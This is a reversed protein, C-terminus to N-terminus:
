TRGPPSAERINEPTQDSLPMFSYRRLKDLINHNPEPIRNEMPKVSSKRRHSSVGISCGTRKGIAELGRTQQAPWQLPPEQFPFDNIPVPTQLPSEELVELSQPINTGCHADVGCAYLDSVTERHESINSEGFLGLPTLWDSTSTRSPLKPFCTMSGDRQRTARYGMDGSSERPSVPESISRRPSRPELEPLPSPEEITPNLRSSM